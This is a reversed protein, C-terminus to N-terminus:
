AASLRKCAPESAAAKQLEASKLGSLSSGIGNMSNRVTTGLATAAAQFASASDTPLHDARRAAAKMAGDLQTFAGVIASEIKDGGSVSPTGANQLKSLATGTDAAVASLFHRLAIKGEAPSRITSPNLANSRAAVSSEFPGVANCVSRVYASPSVGSSGSGCGAIGAIAGVAAVAAASRRFNM